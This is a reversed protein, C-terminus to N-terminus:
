SALPVGALTLAAVPTLRESVVPVPVKPPVSEPVIAAPVFWIVNLKTVYVLASLPTTIVAERVLPSVNADPFLAAKVTLVPPALTSAKVVCGPFAVAPAEMDPGGVTVTRSLEPLVIVEEVAEIVIPIPVLGLPPTSLPVTVCLATEPTALKGPTLISL